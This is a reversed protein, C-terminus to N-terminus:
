LTEPPYVMEPSKAEPRSWLLLMVALIPAGALSAILGCWAIEVSSAHYHWLLAVFAACPIVLLWVGHAQEIGLLVFAVVSELVLVITTLWLILLTPAGGIFKDSFFLWLLWDGGLWPLLLSAFLSAALGIGVALSLRHVSKGQAHLSAVRSFLVQYVPTAVLYILRALVSAASYLGAEEPGLFHKAALVDVNTLCLFYGYTFLLSASFSWAGTLSAREPVTHRLAHLQWFALALASAMGVAYGAVAGSVASALVLMTFGAVLRVASETVQNIGYALFRHQGRLIGRMGWVPLSVAVFVGLWGLPMFHRLHLWSQVIPMLPLWLVAGVIAVGGLQRLARGTMYALAGRMDQGHFSAAYKCVATEVPSFVFACINALSIVATLEGYGALGLWHATLKVYVAAFVASLATCVTLIVSQSLFGQGSDANAATPDVNIDPQQM